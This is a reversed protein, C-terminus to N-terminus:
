FVVESGLKLDAKKGFKLGPIFLKETYQFRNNGQNCELFSSQRNPLSCSVTQPSNSFQYEWM